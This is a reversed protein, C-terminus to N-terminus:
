DAKAEVPIPDEEPVEPHERIEPPKFLLSLAVSLALVGGIVGLAVPTTITVYDEILMKTGIFM